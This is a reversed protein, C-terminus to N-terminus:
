LVIVHMFVIHFNSSHHPDSYTEKWAAFWGEKEVKEITNTWVSHYVPKFAANGEFVVEIWTKLHGPEGIRAEIEKLYAEAMQSVTERLKAQNISVCKNHVM